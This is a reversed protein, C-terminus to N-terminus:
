NTVSHKEEPWLNSLKDATSSVVSLQSENMKNAYIEKPIGWLTGAIIGVIPACYHKDKNRAMTIAQEADKSMHVYHLAANLVTPAYAIHTKVFPEPSRAYCQLANTVDNHLSPMNSGHKIADFLKNNKLLSRCIVNVVGSVQGALPNYHTLAAEEQSIKFLEVDDDFSHYFALPFSRQAPGCGATYGDLKTHTLKVYEDISSQDLLFSQRSISPNRSSKQINNLVINYLNKTIEGVESRQIHYLYLYRSLVDPGNFTKKELLSDSINIALSISPDYNSAIAHGIFAGNCRGQINLM